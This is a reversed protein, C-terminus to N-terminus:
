LKHNGTTKNAQFKPGSQGRAHAYKPFSKSLHGVVEEAKVSAKLVRTLRNKLALCSWQVLKVTTEKVPCVGLCPDLNRTSHNFIPM